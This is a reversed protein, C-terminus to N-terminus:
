TVLTEHNHSLPIECCFCVCHSRQMPTSTAPSSFSTQPSPQTCSRQQLQAHQSSPGHNSLRAGSRTNTEWRRGDPVQPSHDHHSPISADHTSLLARTLARYQLSPPSPPCASLSSLSPPCLYPSSYLPLCPSAFLSMAYCIVCVFLCCVSPPQLVRGCHAPLFAIVLLVASPLHGM